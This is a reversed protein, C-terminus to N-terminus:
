DKSAQSGLQYGGLSFAASLDRGLRAAEETKIPQGDIAKRIVELARVAEPGRKETLARAVDALAEQKRGLQAQPTERTIFRIINSLTARSEGFAASGIVGPQLEVAIAERRAERRGTASGTAIAQRTGFQKGAADIESFLRSAKSEGLVIGLKERADRSSLTALLRQTEQTDISPDDVARRVRALADDIYERIGQRAADQAQLSAGKMTEAVSERTVSAGFIKRGMDLAKDEAIKDGGLKVATRYAPVAEGIADRLDRALGNARNAAATPRGLTDVESGVVGLAKKIEDLQQVNPMERFTVAGDDAIQAMIQKNTIGAARMADNAESIAASLTKSPIRSLVGEINRGVGAAYDIPASYAAGYAKSRIGATRTSINKAASKVGQPAGLVADLVNSLRSGAAAARGSVADVGIRAARGGGTIAADLAERTSIGADALMADPGAKALSAQAAGYDLADIDPKLLRAARPSIGLEKAIVKFDVGKLNAVAAKFAEALAPAAAGAVGGFIGGLKADGIATATRDGDNGRGYGSVAGETAGAVAGAAGGLAVRGVLTQPVYSTAAAMGSPAAALVGLAAGGLQLAGSQIPNERDMAAQAGRVGEMAPKGYMAGIAEDAYQGVFPVGQIVKAARAVAPAQGITTKDWNSTSAEGPTMGEMLKAITAQDNTSYAPSSFSLAGGEGRTIRGGDKTTGVIEPAAAQAGGGLMKKLAAVAGVQSDGTVKYRKGDPATILFEGM